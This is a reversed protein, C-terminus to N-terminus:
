SKSGDSKRILYLNIKSRRKIFPTTRGRSKSFQRKMKTGENVFYRSIYINEDTAEKDKLKLGAVGSAILKAIIKAHGTGIAFKLQAIADTAKKNVIVERLLRAKRPTMKANKLSVHHENNKM